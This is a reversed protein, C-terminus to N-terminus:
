SYPCREGCLLCSVACARRREYQPVIAPAQDPDATNCSLGHFRPLGLRTRVAVENGPKKM